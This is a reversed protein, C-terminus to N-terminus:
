KSTIFDTVLVSPSSTIRSETKFLAAFRSESPGAEAVHVFAPEPKMAALEVTSLFGATRHLNYSSDFYGLTLAHRLFLYLLTEPTKDENVGQEQYLADLSTKAADILWQIYNRGKDAYPRIPRTESLPLDDIVNGVQAADTLFFQQLIEPP